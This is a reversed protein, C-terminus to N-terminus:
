INFRISVQVEGRGEKAAALITEYGEIDVETATDRQTHINQGTWNQIFSVNTQLHM